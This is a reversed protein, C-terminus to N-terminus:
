RRSLRGPSPHAIADKDEGGGFSVLWRSLHVMLRLHRGISDASYGQGTWPRRSVRATLALPGDLPGRVRRTMITEEESTVPSGPLSEIVAVRNHRPIRLPTAASWSGRSLVRCLLARPMIASSRSASRSSMRPRTWMRCPSTCRKPSRLGSTALLLIVTHLPRRGSRALIGSTWDRLALAGALLARVEDRTYIHPLKPPRRRPRLSEGPVFTGPSRAALFRCFRRLLYYRARRANPARTACDALWAKARGGVTGSPCAESPPTDSQAGTATDPPRTPPPAPRWPPPSPPSSVRGFARLLSRELAAGATQELRDSGSRWLPNSTM